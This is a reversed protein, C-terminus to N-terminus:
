GALGGMRAAKFGLLKSFRGGEINGWRHTEHMSSEKALGASESPPIPASPTARYYKTNCLKSCRIWCAGFFNSTGRRSWPFGASPLIRTWNGLDRGQAM